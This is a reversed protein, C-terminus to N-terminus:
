FEQLAQNVVIDLIEVFAAWSTEEMSISRGWNGRCPAVEMKAMRGLELYYIPVFVARPLM